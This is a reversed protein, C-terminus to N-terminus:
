KVTASHIELAIKLIAPLSENLNSTIAIIIGEKKDYIFFANFGSIGGSKAPLIRDKHKVMDLGYGYTWIGQTALKGNNLRGPTTMEEISEKTLLVGPQFAKILKALDSATSMIGGSAYPASASAYPTNQIGERSLIYGSTRKPIIRSNSGLFTNSMGLPKCIREQLFESYPQGTVKEIILGLLICGPNSYQAKQGPEFDLPVSKIMEVEEQPTWNKMQNSKFPEIDILEHIGSTHLLLNKLTIDDGNPYQPFYKSLKDNVSLKKEEQLIMIGITTFTKSVSGIEFISDKEVPAKYELNAYGYSREIKRGDLFVVAVSLGPIKSEKIIRKAILDVENQTLDEACASAILITFLFTIFLFISVIRKM